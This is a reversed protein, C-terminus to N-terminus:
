MKLRGPRVVRHGARDRFTKLQVAMVGMEEQNIIARDVLITTLEDQPPFEFLVNRSISITPTLKRNKHNDYSVNPFTM